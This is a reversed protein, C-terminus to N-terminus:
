KTLAPLTTFTHAIPIRFALASIQGGPPTDFEITGRINATMPYKDSVLTFASHGNPALHITDTAIPTGSENRVIVPVDAAQASVSNVAVGIATGSTNDFALIYGVAGRSEFPVVAEQGNPNYRFPVFGTINGSTTLQASGITPAPDSLPLASEILLSAGPNLTQGVSPAITTPGSATQPFGIPLALPTGNDALFPCISVERM